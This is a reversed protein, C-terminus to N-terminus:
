FSKHSDLLLTVPGDNILRVEMMAQFIGTGVRVGFGEIQKIFFSYLEKAKESGAAKSYSPRRGKRCDGYLTFQSVILAEGHIDLLSLNMKDDHDPFIRLNVIKDALYVADQQTDDRTVGLFILVGKQIAGTENGSVTVSGEKILQVVARM